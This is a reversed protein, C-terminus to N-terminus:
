QKLVVSFNYQFAFILNTRTKSNKSLLFLKKASTELDQVKPEKTKLCFFM